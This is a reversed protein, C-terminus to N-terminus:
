VPTTVTENDRAGVNASSTAEDEKKNRGSKSRHLNLIEVYKCNEMIKKETDTMHIDTTDGPKLMKNGPIGVASKHINTLRYM